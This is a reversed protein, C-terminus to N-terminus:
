NRQENQWDTLRTIFQLPMNVNTDALRLLALLTDHLRYLARMSIGNWTAYQVSNGAGNDAKKNALESNKDITKEFLFDITHETYRCFRRLQEHIAAKDLRESLQIATCKGSLFHAFQAKEQSLSQVLEPSHLLELARLPACDVLKAAGAIEAETMPNDLQSQLWHLILTKEVKQHRLRQVRSMITPLVRSLNTVSLVFFADKPPEELTKLLANQAGVSLLDLGNIFAVKPKDFMSTQWMNGELLRVDNIGVKDAVANLSLMNPHTGEEVLLCHKCRQCGNQTDCLITQVIQQGLARDDYGPRLRFLLAHPLSGLMLQQRVHAVIQQHWPYNKGNSM